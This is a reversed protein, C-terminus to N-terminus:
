LAQVKESKVPKVLHDCNGVKYGLKGLKHGWGTQVLVSAGVFGASRLQTRQGCPPLHRGAAKGSGSGGRLLFARKGSSAACSPDWGSGSCLRFRTRNSTIQRTWSLDAGADM